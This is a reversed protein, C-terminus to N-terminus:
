SKEEKIFVIEADSVETSVPETIEGQEFMRRAEDESAATVVYVERADGSAVITFVPM